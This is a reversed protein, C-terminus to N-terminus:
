RLRMCIVCLCRHSLYVRFIERDFLDMIQNQFLTADRAIDPHFVEMTSSSNNRKDPFYICNFVESTPSVQWFLFNPDFSIAAFRALYTESRASNRAIMASSATTILVKDVNPAKIPTDSCAKLLRRKRGRRQNLSYHQWITVCRWIPWPPGSGIFRFDRFM